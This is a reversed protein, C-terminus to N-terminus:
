DTGAREQQQEEPKMVNVAIVATGSDNLKTLASSLSQMKLVKAMKRSVLMIVSTSVNVTNAAVSTQMQSVNICSVINVLPIHM